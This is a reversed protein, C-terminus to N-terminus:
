KNWSYLSFKSTLLNNNTKNYIFNQIGDLLMYKKGLICNLIKIDYEYKIIPVLNKNEEITIIEDIENNKIM